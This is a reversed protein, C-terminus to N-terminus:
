IKSEARGDLRLRLPNKGTAEKVIKRFYAVSSFGLKGCIEEVSLETQRLLLKAEDLLIENKVNIPTTGIDRFFAYVSTESMGLHRALEPVRFNRHSAMYAKAKSLLAAKRDFNAVQMKPMQTGFFTFFRGVSLPNISMESAVLDLLAIEADTPFLKQLRYRVPEAAPYGDFRYSEFRVVGSGSSYWYSHYKLGFPLYFVDGQSLELVGEDASVFEARGELLRGVFNCTIGASNDTHHRDKFSIATFNFSKCFLSNDM